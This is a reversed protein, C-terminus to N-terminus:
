FRLAYKKIYQAALFSLCVFFFILFFIAKFGFFEALFGGVFATFAGGLGVGTDYISWQYGEKNKDVFRTYLTYWAAFSFASGLGYIFQAAYIHYINQAFFYILPTIAILASGLFLFKIERKNAPERDAFKGIFPQCISKTILFIFSSIGIAAISVGKIEEKLFIAFIPQLFGFSSIVLLDYTILLKLAKNM